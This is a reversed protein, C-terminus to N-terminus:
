VEKQAYPQQVAMVQETAAPIRIVFSGYVLRVSKIVAGYCIFLMLNM